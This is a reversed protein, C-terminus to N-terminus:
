PVVRAALVGAAAGAEHLVPDDGAPRGMSEVQLDAEVLLRVADVPEVDVIEHRTDIQADVHDRRLREEDVGGVCPLAVRVRSRTAISLVTVSHHSVGRHRPRPDAFSARLAAIPKGQLGTAADLVAGVEIGSFGLRSGTGASGPGMAAIIADAGAEHRAVALAGYVSM